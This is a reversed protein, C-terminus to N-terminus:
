QYSPNKTMYIKNKLILDLKDMKEVKKQKKMSLFAELAPSHFNEGVNEESSTENEM